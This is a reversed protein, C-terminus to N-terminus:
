GPARTGNEPPSRISAPGPIVAQGELTISRFECGNGNIKRTGSMAPKYINGAVFSAVAGVHSEEQGVVSTIGPGSPDDGWLRDTKGAVHQEYTILLPPDPKVARVRGAGRPWLIEDVAPESGSLAAWGRRSLDWFILYGAV